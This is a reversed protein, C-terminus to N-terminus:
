LCTQEGPAGNLLFRPVAHGTNWEYTYTGLGGGALGEIVAPGWQKGEIRVFVPPDHVRFSWQHPM